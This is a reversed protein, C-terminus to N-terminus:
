HRRPGPAPRAAPLQRGEVQWELESRQLGAPRWRPAAVQTRPHGTALARPSRAGRGDGRGDEDVGLPSEGDIVGIIGRGHDTEAVLVDLPNATACIVHCVEPVQKVANLVSLPYGDRLFVIFFHAQGLIVNIGEPKEVTIAHIDM